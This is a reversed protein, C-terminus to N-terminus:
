DGYAAKRGRKELYSTLISVPLLIILYSIVLMFLAETTKYDMGIIDKALFMLDAVAIAGVISTEKLLFLCNAGIGPIAISFAQPLIVYIFCQTKSFGISLGSEIQGKSVAELGGRFTEAMYSGGLFSLGIVGCQFGDIKIGMKPLGYYLFFLQILLPTNRSLEIYAKAIISFIKVKYYILNSCILGIIVSFIIGLIALEVTLITAQWFKPIYNVIFQWNM